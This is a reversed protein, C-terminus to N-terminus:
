SRSQARYALDDPNERSCGAYALVVLFGMARPLLRRVPRIPSM